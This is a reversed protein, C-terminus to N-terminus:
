AQVDHGDTSREKTNSDDLGLFRRCDQETHATGVRRMKGQQREWLAWRWVGYIRYARVYRYGEQRSRLMFYETSVRASTTM